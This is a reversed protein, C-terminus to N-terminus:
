SREVLPVICFSESELEFRHVGDGVMNKEEDSFIWGDLKSEAVAIQQTEESWNFVGLTAGSENKKLWLSPVDHEPFDLPLTEGYTMRLADNILVRRKEDLDHLKSSLVRLGGAFAVFNNWLTARRITLPEHAFMCDADNWWVHRNLFQLPAVSRVGMLFTREWNGASVDDGIRMGDVIGLAPALLCNCGLLFREDGFGERLARLGNGYMQVNTITDNYPHFSIGRMDLLEMGWSEFFDYTLFDIKLYDYGWGAITSSLAKLWALADPHSLDFTDKAWKPAENSEWRQFPRLWIGPHFGKAHIRAALASMGSPFKAQDIEIEGLKRSGNGSTWGDDIQITDLGEIAHANTMNVDIESETINSEYGAYWSCWAVKPTSNPKRQIRERMREAMRRMGSNYRGEWTSLYIEGPTFAEKRSLRVGRRGSLCDMECRVRLVRKSETSSLLPTIHFRVLSSPPSIVGMCVNRETRPDHIALWWFSVLPQNDTVSHSGDYGYAREAPFTIVCTQSSVTLLGDTFWDPAYDFAAIRRVRIDDNSANTLECGIMAEQDTLMAISRRFDVGRKQANSNDKFDESRFRLLDTETEIWADLNELLPEFM